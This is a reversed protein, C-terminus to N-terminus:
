VRERCAARGIEHGDKVAMVVAGPAAKGDIMEQAIANIERALQGGDIGLKDPDTYALSIKETKNGDGKKFNDSVDVPLIGDAAVGGFVVQANIASAESSTDTTWIIPTEIDDLKALSSYPGQGVIILDETKNYEKLSRMFPEDALLKDNIEVILTNYQKVDDGPLISTIEAYYNLLSDFTVDANMSAITRKDLQKLPIKNTTNNLLVTTSSTELKSSHSDTPKKQACAYYSVCTLLGLALILNRM